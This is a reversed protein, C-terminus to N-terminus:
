DTTAILFARAQEETLHDLQITPVEKVGLLQCAAIRGHGAIVNLNADILVPVNFGFAEISRALQQIQKRSHARPNKSNLKPENIPRYVISMPQGSNGIKKDPDERRLSDPM